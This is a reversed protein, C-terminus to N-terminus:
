KNIHKKQESVINQDREITKSVIDASIINYKRVFSNYDKENIFELQKQMIYKYDEDNKTYGDEDKVGYNTNVFDVFEQNKQKKDEIMGKIRYIYSIMDSINDTTLSKKEAENGLEAAKYIKDGIKFEIFNLGMNILNKERVEQLKEFTVGETKVPQFVVKILLHKFENIKNRITFIFKKIELDVEETSSAFEINTDVLEIYCGYISRVLMETLKRYQDGSNFFYSCEHTLGSILEKDKTGINEPHIERLFYNIEKIKNIKYLNINM